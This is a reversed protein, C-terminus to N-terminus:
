FVAHVGLLLTFLVSRQLTCPAQDLIVGVLVRLGTFQLLLSTPDHAIGEDHERQPRRARVHLAETGRRIKDPFEHQM